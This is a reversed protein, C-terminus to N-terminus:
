FRVQRFEPQQSVLMGPLPRFPGDFKGRGAIGGVTVTSVGQSKDSLKPWEHRKYPQTGTRPTRSGASRLGECGAVRREIGLRRRV